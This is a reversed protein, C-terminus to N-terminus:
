KKRALARIDTRSLFRRQGAASPTSRLRVSAAQISAVSVGVRSVVTPLYNPDGTRQDVVTAYPFVLADDPGSALYFVVSGAAVATRIRRQIHGYPPVEFEETAVVNGAADQVDMEVTTWGATWSAVGANARFLEGDNMIGAAYGYGDWDLGQGVSLGPMAQGFEGSSRLPDPTYSRSTALFDCSAEASCDTADADAYVLLAGTGNWAFLDPGLVDWLNVTEWPGLTVDLAPATWNEQGSPLLQVVVPLDYEHPNHLNVDTSWFTQHVGATHAAAPIMWAPALQAMVLGPALGVLLAAILMSQRKM